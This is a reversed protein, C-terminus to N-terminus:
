HGLACSDPGETQFKFLSISFPCKAASSLFHFHSIPGVSCSPTPGELLSAVRPSFTTGGGERPCGKMEGAVELPWLLSPRSGQPRDGM